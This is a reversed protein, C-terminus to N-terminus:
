DKEAQVKAIAKRMLQKHHEITSEMLYYEIKRGREASQQLGECVKRGAEEVEDAAKRSARHLESFFNRHAIKPHANKVLEYNTKAEELISQTAEKATQLLKLQLAKKHDQYQDRTMYLFNISKCHLEAKDADTKVKLYEVKELDAPDRDMEAELEVLSKIFSLYLTDEPLLEASSKSDNM